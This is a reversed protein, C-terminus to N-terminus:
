FVNRKLLSLVLPAFVFIGLLIVIVYNGTFVNVFDKLYGIFETYVAWM